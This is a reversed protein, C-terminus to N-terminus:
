ESMLEFRRVHRGSAQEHRVPVRDGESPLVYPDIDCFDDPELSATLEFSSEFEDASGEGSPDPFSPDLGFPVRESVSEFAESQAGRPAVELGSLVIRGGGDGESPKGDFRTALRRGLDSDAGQDRHATLLLGADDNGLQRAM